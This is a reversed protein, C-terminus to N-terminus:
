WHFKTKLIILRIHDFIQINIHNCISVSISNVIRNLTIRENSGSVKEFDIIQDNEVKIGESELLQQM